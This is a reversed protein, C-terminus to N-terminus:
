ALASVTEAAGDTRAKAKKREKAGARKKKSAADGQAAETAGNEPGNMRRKKEMPQDNTGTLPRKGEKRRQMSLALANEDPRDEPLEEGWRRQSIIRRLEKLKKKNRGSSSSGDRRYPALKKLSEYENLEADTAM